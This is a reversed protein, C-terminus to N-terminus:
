SIDLVFRCLHQLVKDARAVVAQEKGRFSFTELQLGYNEDLTLDSTQTGQFGDASIATLGANTFDLSMGGASFASVAETTLPGNLPNSGLLLSLGPVRVRM